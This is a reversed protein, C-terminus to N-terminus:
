FWEEDAFLFCYEWKGIADKYRRVELGGTSIETIEEGRKRLTKYLRLLEQYINEKTPVGCGAWEWNLLDYIPAVRTALTDAALEAKTM